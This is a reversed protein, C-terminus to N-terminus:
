TQAATAAASYGCIGRLISGPLRERAHVPFALRRRNGLTGYVGSANATSSGSVWTWSGSAPAAPSCACEWLDNFLVTNGTNPDTGQGGFLWLNGKTDTWSVSGTRAGPINSTSSQGQTGYVGVAGPTSAGGLWEWQGAGLVPDFVWLDNFQTPNGNSPNLGEGGFLWLYNQSNVTTVWTVAGVRAGPTATTSFSGETGYVGPANPTASGGVWTWYGPSLGTKQYVWLDNFFQTNGPGPTGGFLWFNRASDLWASADARAGPVNSLAAVNLTGYVGTANPTNSGNVWDWQGCSVVVTTVAATGMTGSGGSVICTQGTPQQLVQVSYTDGQQVYTPFTFSTSTSSETLSDKGNGLILGGAGLGSITGSIGYCTSCSSGSSSSSTSSSSSHSSGCGAVTLVMLAMLSVVCGIRKLSATM